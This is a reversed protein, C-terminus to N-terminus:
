LFPFSIASQWHNLGPLESPLPDEQLAPSRPETEPNPLDESSPFPLGNWYEQRCFGMSRPAQLAVTWSAVLLQVHNLSKMKGKKREGGRDSTNIYYNQSLRPLSLHDGGRLHLVGAQFASFARLCWPHPQVRRCSQAEREKCCWQEQHLVDDGLPLLLAQAKPPLACNM